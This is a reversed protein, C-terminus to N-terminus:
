YQEGGGVALDEVIGVFGLRKVKSVLVLLFYCVEDNDAFFRRSFCCNGCNWCEKVGEHM